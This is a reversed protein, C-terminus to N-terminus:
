FYTGNGKIYLSITGTASEGRSGTYSISARVEATATGNNYVNTGTTKLDSTTPKLTVYAGKDSVAAYTGDCVANAWVVVSGLKADNYLDRMEVTRSASVKSRTSIPNVALVKFEIGDVVYVHESLDWYDISINFDTDTDAADAALAPVAMCTIMALALAFISIKKKM